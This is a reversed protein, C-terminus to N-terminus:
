NSNNFFLTLQHSLIKLTLISLIVSIANSFISGGLISLAGIILEPILSGQFRSANYIDNLWFNQGSRIMRYTDNDTGYGMLSIIFYFGLLVILLYNLNMSNLSDQLRNKM